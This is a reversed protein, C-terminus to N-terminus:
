MPVLLHVPSQHFFSLHGPTDQVFELLGPNDIAFVNDATIRAVDRRLNSLSNRTLRQIIEENRCLRRKGYIVEM